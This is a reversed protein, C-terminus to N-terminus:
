EFNIKGWKKQLSCVNTSTACVLVGLQLNKKISGQKNKAFFDKNKTSLFSVKYMKCLCALDQKTPWFQPVGLKRTLSLM